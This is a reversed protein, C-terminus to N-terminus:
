KQAEKMPEDIKRYGAGYIGEAIERPTTEYVCYLEEVIRAMEDIQKEKNM